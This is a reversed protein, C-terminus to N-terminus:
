AEARLSEAAMRIRELSVERGVIEMTEFLPPSVRQGTIAERLSGFLQGAKIGMEEALARMAAELNDHTWDKLTSLHDYANELTKLTTEADMNKQILNEVPETPIFEERFFFGAMEVVDNLTKIRTQILPIVKLLIEINVEFDAAELRERLLKALAQPPMDRIYIGNLWDLKELPFASNSPNIHTLDFRDISEDVSFVERDEGFNWGINSLFNVVAAPV